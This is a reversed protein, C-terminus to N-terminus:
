KSIPASIIDVIKIGVGDHSLMDNKNHKSTRRALRGIALNEADVERIVDVTTCFESITKPTNTGVAVYHIIVAWKDM